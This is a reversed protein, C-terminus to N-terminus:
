ALGRKRRYGWEAGVLALLLLLIAPMDWLDREEVVTVGRGSHSIAEPLLTPATAAPFFRGGTEEAIRTLLSSRMTADFYENDGASVRAHIMNTGLSTEGRNAKTRIEYLGPEDPVYTARYEGDKSVTWELQVESTKGSPSVIEAVVHADNVEVFAPDVVDVVLRMPEGPEVREVATSLAVNDPVGDVLWRILRRWFASHTTDEVPIKADM